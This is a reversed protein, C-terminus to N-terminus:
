ESRLELGGPALVPCSLLGRLSPVTCAAGAEQLTRESCTGAVGAVVAGSGRAAQIGSVADEVVLLSPGDVGLNDRTRVYIEPDPKARKVDDGSLVSHFLDRTGTMRLFYDVSARSGSSALGLPWRRSLTRLVHICDPVLPQASEIFQRALRSKEAAAALIEAETAEVKRQALVKRVVDLAREGAYGAYVFDRIGFGEFAREFARAHCPSSDLLVGDLDFAIARILTV